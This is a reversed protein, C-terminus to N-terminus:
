LPQGTRVLMMLGSSWAFKTVIFGPRSELDAILVQVKQAHGEPWTSQPLLDDVVYVGGVRLLSLALDLHTFKGPWSDAFIVDFQQSSQELFTGGDGLHFTVRPDHGLHRRAVEVVTPDNDVSVLRSTADMGSLLWTTGVGAGTGLELMQGGPKSAALGRLFSGAQPESALTFGIRKADGRIADLVAPPDIMEQDNM